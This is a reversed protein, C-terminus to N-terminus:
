HGGWGESHFPNGTLVAAPSSAPNISHIPGMQFMM